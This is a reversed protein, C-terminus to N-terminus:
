AEGRVTQPENALDSVTSLEGNLIDALASAGKNIKMDSTTSRQGVWDNHEDVRHQEISSNIHSAHPDTNEIIFHASQNWEKHQILEDLQVSAISAQMSQNLELGAFETMPNASHKRVRLFRYVDSLISKQLGRLDSLYQAGSYVPDWYIRNRVPVGALACNASVLAGFRLSVIDISDCYSALHQAADLVDDGWQEISNVDASSHSSNSTGQWDFRQSTFGQRALNQMLVRLPRQTRRQENGIPPVLLVGVGNSVSEKASQTLTYIQRNRANIFHPIPAPVVRDVAKGEIYGALLAVTDLYFFDRTSISDSWIQCLQTQVHGVPAKFHKRRPAVAHTGDPLAKRDIKGNLTKPLSALMIYRNPVMYVPLQQQLHDAVDSASFSTNDSAVYALLSKKGDSEDAVVLVEKVDSIANIANEIEGPEIRYSGVKIQHDIRGAYDINGDDMWRALDGTRYMKAGPVSSFPDDFFANETLDPRNLYGEALSPGGIFLEGTDGEAVAKRNDDLIYATYNLIPKGIPLAKGQWNPPPIFVTASVTAETPGYANAWLTPKDVLTQWRHYHEPSVKEGTVVMLRVSDCVRTNAANMLDVWEHWYGTALHLATIQYKEVIGSLEIQADSRQSPRIVVTSGVLL